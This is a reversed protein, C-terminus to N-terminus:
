AEHSAEMRRLDLSVAGTPGDYSVGKVLARVVERHREEFAQWDAESVNLQERTEPARLAARLQDLVADEIMRAPVSKTPCSSWGKQRATRCVYYRYRRGPKATYTPIMPRQCSKCSLLGALLANQPARMAEEGGRRGIRLEDNVQQWVPLEIIAAHEGAYMVGRHEVKGAYVANTLLRRLSAKTFPRSTHARGKQSKRSKTNWRRRALEAVVLSLSHHQVFLAFIERVRHREKENVILRGGAPDVDYGLVPTGGVWKGKRRAASMKDRTRERIIEREFEAFSLLINLTLRGLSTTTNFPQTVSVFSVSRQDFRDM